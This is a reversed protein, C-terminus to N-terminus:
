ARHLRCDAARRGGGSTALDARLAAADTPEQRNARRLAAITRLQELASVLAYRERTTMLASEGSPMARPPPAGLKRVLRGLIDKAEDRTLPPPAPTAPARAPAPASVRWGDAPRRGWQRTLAREVRDLASSIQEPKPYAFGLQVLRCKVREKWEADDITRDDVIVARVVACLQKDGIPKSM